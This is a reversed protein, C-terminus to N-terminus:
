ESHEGVDVLEPSAEVFQEMAKAHSTPMYKARLKDIAEQKDKYPSDSVMINDIRREIEYRTM